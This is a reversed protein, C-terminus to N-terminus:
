LDLRLYATGIANMEQVILLRRADFRAFSVNYIFALFLGLLAFISGNIV